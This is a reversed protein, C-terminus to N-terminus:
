RRRRGGVPLFGEAEALTGLAEEMISRAKATMSYLYHHLAADEENRSECQASYEEFACLNQVLDATHRPCECEVTTSTRALQALEVDNFRRRPIEEQPNVEVAQQPAPATDEIVPRNEAGRRLLQYLTQTTVPSRLLEVRDAALTELDQKTGFNFLVIVRRTGALRRLKGVTLRTETNIVPFELLLVDPEARRLQDSFEDVDTGTLCVELKGPSNIRDPLNELAFGGFAAVRVLGVSAVLQLSSSQEILQDRRAKLEETTLNAIQGISSGNDSLSKLLSLKEIDSKSYVRRGSETRDAVIASYRREWIRLTHTSIGTLRAVAGISYGTSKSEDGSQGESLDTTQIAM